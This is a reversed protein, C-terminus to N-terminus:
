LLPDVHVFGAHEWVADHRVSLDGRHGGLERPPEELEDIGIVTPRDHVRDDRTGLRDFPGEGSARRMQEWDAAVLADLQAVGEGCGRHQGVVAVARPSVVMLVAYEDARAGREDISREWTGELDDIDQGRCERNRSQRNRRAEVPGGSM